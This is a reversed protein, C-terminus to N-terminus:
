RAEDVVPALKEFEFAGKRVLVSFASGVSTALRLAEYVPAPVERYVYRGGNNFTVLLRSANAAYAVNAINSSKCAFRRTDGIVQEARPTKLPELEALTLMQRVDSTEIEAM